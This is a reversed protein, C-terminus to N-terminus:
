LWYIGNSVIGQLGPGGLFRPEPQSKARATARKKAGCIEGKRHGGVGQPSQLFSPYQNTAQFM